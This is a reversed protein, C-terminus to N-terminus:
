PAKSIDCIQTAYKYRHVLLASELVAGEPSGELAQSRRAEAGIEFKLRNALAMVVYTPMRKACERDDQRSLARAKNGSHPTDETFFFYVYGRTCSNHFAKMLRTHPRIHRSEKM